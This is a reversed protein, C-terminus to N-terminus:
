IIEESDDPLICEIISDNLSTTYQYIHHIKLGAQTILENWQARTRERSGLLAMMAMDLETAQWHVGIDPLVMEDILLVSGNDMAPKINQLIEFAKDSPWDHIINRMYYIRAGKVPQIEWFNHATYEIDLRKTVQEMLEPLDQVIIRNTITKPLANRLALSQHGLGGGIDVFFVQNPDMDQAKDKFPYYLLVRMMVDQPGEISLILNSLTDILKKRGSEDAGKVMQQIAEVMSEM